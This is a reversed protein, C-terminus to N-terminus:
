APALASLAPEAFRFGEFEQAEDENTALRATAGEQDM